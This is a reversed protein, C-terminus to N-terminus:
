VRVEILQKVKKSHTYLPPLYKSIDIDVNTDVDKDSVCSLQKVLRGKRRSVTIGRAQFDFLLNFLLFKSLNNLEHSKLVPM